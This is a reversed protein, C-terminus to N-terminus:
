WKEYQVARHEYGGRRLLDRLEPVINGVGCVYFYRGRDSDRVLYERRICELLSGGLLPAFTFRAHERAAHEFEDAYLLYARGAAAYHLRLAYPSATQLARWLMPRIPVIGTGAAIFVCEAAPPRELTFTGWPGTFRLAAGIRREFLYRSGLGGSVLTLCIELLEPEEPSSAISYPRIVPEGDLPLLCSIFQGPIFSFPPSPPLRLFLSRTDPAREIIQEIRAEYTVPHSQRIRNKESERGM